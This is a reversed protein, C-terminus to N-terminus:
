SLHDSVDLSNPRVNGTSVNQQTFIGKSFYSSIVTIPDTDDKQLQQSFKEHLNKLSEQSRILDLLKRNENLCLPCESDNEASYSEFCQQHYSHDCLFHVSPLELPHNCGSCKSAQFVKPSRKINEITQRMKDTDDKYQSILKENETIMDAERTLYRVLYDKVVSLTASSNKSLINVVSTASVLKRKEVEGLIELLQENTGENEAFHWLADVWLNPQQDGFDRCCKIVKESDHRQIYYRSILSYLKVREYLYLLGKDFSNLKCLVMAQQVDYNAEPTRLLSLIKKEYEDKVAMDSATRFSRLYLDLLTNYYASTATEPSLKIIYELFDLMKASNKVFVNLFEDHNIDDGIDLDDLYLLESVDSETRRSKSESFYKCLGKILETTQDPEKEMLFRGYKIMYQGVLIQSDLSKMYALTGSANNKDELQIKFFWDHRKYSSALYLAHDFFTAQRLVKIATEVDFNPVSTDAETSKIFQDLKTTDKLKAYCNILLTTHDENALGKKHLEQLYATLNHIRQADLFKRIVYSPELKGITKVYQTIAGDHDGKKYLHDAYQKFIDAMGEEEYKYNKALEIAFSYQNKRFLSDLKTTTDQERLMILKGGKTLLYLSGWENMVDVIGPMPASYAIFKNQIDYITVLDTRDSISSSSSTSAGGFRSQSNLAIDAINQESSKSGSKTVGGINPAKEKSVIVLYNRFWHLIEKDGEFALCPGREDTQYFYVADKRGVVFLRQDARMPDRTVCSCRPSAGFKLELNIKTEKEKSIIYSFIEKTTTIFLAVTKFSSGGLFQPRTEQAQGPVECFALGTIPSDSIKVLKQKSYKERTVDGRVFLVNGDAFGIALHALSEVVAISTIPTPNSGATGKIVRTCLPKRGDQTSVIKEQHWIKVVPVGPEDAGATILYANQVIQHIHTVCIEFGRFNTQEFQRNITYIYGDSDGILLQGRGTSTCTVRM